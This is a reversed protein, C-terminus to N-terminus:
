VILAKGPGSILAINDKPRGDARKQHSMKLKPNELEYLWPCMNSSLAIKPFWKGM